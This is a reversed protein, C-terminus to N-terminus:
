YLNRLAKEIWLEQGLGPKSQDRLYGSNMAM